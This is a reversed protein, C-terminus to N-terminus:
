FFSFRAPHRRLGIQDFWVRSFVTLGCDNSEFPRSYVGRRMGGSTMAIVDTSAPTIVRVKTVDGGFRVRALFFSSAVLLLRSRRSRSRSRLPM